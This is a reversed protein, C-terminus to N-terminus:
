KKLNTYIKEGCEAYCDSMSLSTDILEINKRAKQVLDKELSPFFAKM